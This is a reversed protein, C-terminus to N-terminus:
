STATQKHEEDLHAQTVPDPKDKEELVKFLGLTVAATGLGHIVVPIFLTWWKGTALVLIAAVIVAAAGTMWLLMRPTGFM